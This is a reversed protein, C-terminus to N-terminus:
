IRRKRIPRLKLPEFDSRGDSYCNAAHPAVIVGRQHRAGAAVQLAAKAERRSRCTLLWDDAYRTLQYGRRRMERDFPTLFINSLLPSVVGKVCFTVEREVSRQPISLHSNGEQCIDYTTM